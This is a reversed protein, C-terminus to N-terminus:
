SKNQEQQELKEVKRHHELNEESYQTTYMSHGIIALVNFALANLIQTILMVPTEPAHRFFTDLMSYAAVLNAILLVLGFTLLQIRLKRLGNVVRLEKLQLPICFILLEICSLVRLIAALLTGYHILFYTGDM